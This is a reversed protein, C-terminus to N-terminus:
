RGTATAPDRPGTGAPGASSCRKHQPRTPASRRAPPCRHGPLRVPHDGCVGARGQRDEQAAAESRGYVEDFAAWRAPLGAAVLRDLQDMALQPKTSFSLDDPIGAARRRPLDQAWRKPLYVDFDAWAQGNATVYASFVTTVCNEVTGTCGAHQPAVCATADGKKLQATEDIAIGPGVLDQPEDPIWAVALAPLRDRLRKWDWRYSGLLGQMRYQGEHGASEALSWCNAKAASALATVYDLAASASRRQAMVGLLVAWM